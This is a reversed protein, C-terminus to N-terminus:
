KHLLGLLEKWIRARPDKCFGKSTVPWPVSCLSIMLRLVTATSDFAWGGGGFAPFNKLHGGELTQLLLVGQSVVQSQVTLALYPLSRM